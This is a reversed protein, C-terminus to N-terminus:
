DTRPRKKMPFILEDEPMLSQLVDQDVVGELEHLSFTKKERVSPCIEWGNGTITGGNTRLYEIMREMLLKKEKNVNKLETKYPKMNEKIQSEQALLDDMARIGDLISDPLTM